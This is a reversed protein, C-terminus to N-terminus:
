GQNVSAVVPLGLTGHAAQEKEELQRPAAVSDWLATLYTANVETGAPSNLM